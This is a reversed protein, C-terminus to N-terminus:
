HRLASSAGEQVLGEKFLFKEIEEAAMRHMEPTWHFRSELKAGNAIERRFRPRLFLCAIKEDRCYDDIYREHASMSDSLDDVEEYAPMYVLVPVAGISRTTTVIQDLIPRTLQKAEKENIGLSWRVKERLIVALDAAKSRYPERALVQEPTPVPVDTLKLGDATSDFKPKAYAFFKWLNRYTDMFTFGVLVIDPHYKVGEQQLYLLMQDQGYGQVGLNLVETDPLAAELYHSFTEDDSVDTGFTFSDGLVLIRQKGPTRAYDYDTTGRLGKSNTNVFKGKAFPTMNKVNPIVAWGRMPDYTAYKGTWEQHQRHLVVWFLRWSSDDNGLVAHRVRQHMVLNTALFLRPVIELLAFLWILSLLIKVILGRRGPKAPQSLAPEAAVPEIARM